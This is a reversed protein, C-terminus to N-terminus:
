AAFAVGSEHCKQMQLYPIAGLGHSFDDCPSIQIPNSVLKLGAMAERLRRSGQRAREEQRERIRENRTKIDLHLEAILDEDHEEMLLHERELEDLHHKEEEQKKAVLMEKEDADLRLRDRFNDGNVDDILTADASCAIVADQLEGATYWEIPLGLLRLQNIVNQPLVIGNIENPDKQKVSKDPTGKPADAADVNECELKDIPKDGMSAWFENSLKELTHQYASGAEDYISKMLGM